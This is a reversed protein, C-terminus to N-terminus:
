FSISPKANGRTFSPPLSLHCAFWLEVLLLLVMRALLALAAIEALFVGPLLLLLLGLKGAHAFHRALLLFLGLALARSTSSRRRDLNARSAVTGRTSGARPKNRRPKTRCRCTSGLM